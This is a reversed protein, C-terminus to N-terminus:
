DVFNGARKQLGAMVAEIQNKGGMLEDQIVSETQLAEADDQDAIHNYLKKAAQVASPSKEAILQALNM